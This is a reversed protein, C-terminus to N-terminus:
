SLLLFRVLYAIGGIFFGIWILTVFWPFSYGQYSLSSHRKYMRRERKVRRVRVALGSLGECAAGTLRM